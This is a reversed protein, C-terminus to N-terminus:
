QPRLMPGIPLVIFPLTHRLLSHNEFTPLLRSSDAACGCGRPAALDALARDVWTSWGPRVRLAVALMAVVWAQKQLLLLEQQM